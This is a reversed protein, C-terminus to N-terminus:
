QILQDAQVLFSQSLDVGIAKAVPLNAVIHFKTPQTVPIEGPKAGKFIKDIIVTASAWLDPFRVGYGILGGLDAFRPSGAAAIRHKRAQEAIAPMASMVQPLDVFTMAQVKDRAMAAFVTSYDTEGPAVDYVSAKVKVQAARAALATPRTDVLKSDVHLLGIHTLAPLADKLLEVRKAGIAGVFFIQGTINGGPRALSDVVGMAVLDGSDPIVVPITSTARKVVVPALGHTVILDVKQRVLDAALDPLREDKGEASRFDLVLNRGEVYGRERLGARLAEFNLAM